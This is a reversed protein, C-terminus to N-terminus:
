GREASHLIQGLVPVIVELRREGPISMLIDGLVPRLVTFEVPVAHASASPVQGAPFDDPVPVEDGLRHM